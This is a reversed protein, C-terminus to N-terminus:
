GAMWYRAGLICTECNDGSHRPAHVLGEVAKVATLNFRDALASALALPGKCLAKTEALARHFLPFATAPVWVARCRSQKFCDSKRRVHNFGGDLSARIEHSEKFIMGIWGSKGIIGLPKAPLSISAACADERGNVM